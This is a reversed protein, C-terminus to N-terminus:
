LNRGAWRPGGAAIYDASRRAPQRGSLSCNVRGWSAPRTRNEGPAPKGPDRMPAEIHSGPRTPCPKMGVLRLGTSNALWVILKAARGSAAPGTIFNADPGNAGGDRSRLALRAIAAAVCPRVPHGQAYRCTVFGRGGRRVKNAIMASLSQALNGSAPGLSIAM